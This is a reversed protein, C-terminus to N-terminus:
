DITQGGGPPNGNPNAPDQTPTPGVPSAAQMVAGGVFAVVDTAPVFYNKKM